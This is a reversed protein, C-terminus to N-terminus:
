TPAPPIPQPNPSGTQFLLTTDQWGPGPQQPCPAGVPRVGIWRWALKASAPNIPGDVAVQAQATSAPAAILAAAVLCLPALWHLRNSRDM